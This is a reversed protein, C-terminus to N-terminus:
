SRQALYELSVYKLRSPAEVPLGLDRQANARVQYEFKPEIRKYKSSFLVEFGEAFCKDLEAEKFFHKFRPDAEADKRLDDHHVRVLVVGRPALSVKLRDLVSLADQFELFHLVYSVVIVAYKRPEPEYDMIDEVRSTFRGSVDGLKSLNEKLMRELRPENDLGTVHYGRELLYAVTSGDGYGIELAEKSVCTEIDEMYTRLLGCERAIRDQYDLGVYSRCLVDIFDVQGERSTIGRM